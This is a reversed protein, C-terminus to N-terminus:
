TTARGGSAISVVAADYSGANGGGLTKCTKRARRRGAFFDVGLNPASKLAQGRHRGFASSLRKLLRDSSAILVSKHGAVACELDEEIVKHLSAAGSALRGVVQHEERATAKGLLDDIFITLGVQPCARQWVLLPDLTYVQVWLTAWSCGASIGRETYGCDM